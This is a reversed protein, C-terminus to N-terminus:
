NVSDGNYRRIRKEKCIMSLIWYMKNVYGIPENLTRAIESPTKGLSYLRVIRKNMNAGPPLAELIIKEIDSAGRYRGSVM